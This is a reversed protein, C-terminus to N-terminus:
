IHFGRLKAPSMRYTREKPPEDCELNIEFDCERTPPLGDHEKIIDTFGNILSDRLSTTWEPQQDTNIDDVADHVERLGIVFLYVPQQRLLKAMADAELHHVAMPVTYEDGYVMAEGTKRDLIKL